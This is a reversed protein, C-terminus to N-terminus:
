VDLSFYMSLNNDIVESLRGEVWGGVWDSLDFIALSSIIYTHYHVM